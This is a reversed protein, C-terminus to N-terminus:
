GIFRAPGRELNGAWRNHLTLDCDTCYIKNGVDYYERSLEGSHLREFDACIGHDDVLSDTMGVVESNCIGM